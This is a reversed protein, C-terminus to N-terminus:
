TPLTQPTTQWVSDPITQNIVYAGYRGVAHVKYEPFTIDITEVTPLVFGSVMQNQFALVVLGGNKYYVRAGLAAPSDRAVDLVAYSIDGSTKPVAKLEYTQADPASSAAFSVDYASAWTEPTGTGSYIYSFKRAISPLSKLVLVERDPRQYYRVGDVKASVSPGKHVVLEFHIPVSYSNLGKRAETLRDLVELASPGQSAQAAAPTAGSAHATAGAAAVAIIAALVAVAIRRTDKIVGAFKM